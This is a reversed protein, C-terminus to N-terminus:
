CWCSGALLGAEDNTKDGSPIDIHVPLSHIGAGGSQVDALALLPPRRRMQIVAM